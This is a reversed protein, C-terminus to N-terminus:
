CARIYEAELIYPRHFRDRAVKVQYWALLTWYGYDLEWFDWCALEQQGQTISNHLIINPVGQKKQIDFHRKV